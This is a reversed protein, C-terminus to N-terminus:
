DPRAILGALDPSPAPFNEIVQPDHGPVVCETRDALQRLRKFGAYVARLDCLFPLPRDERFNEYFHAADNPSHGTDCRTSNAPRTRL